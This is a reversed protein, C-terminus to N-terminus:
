NIASTHTRIGPRAVYSIASWINPTNIRADHSIIMASHNGFIANLGIYAIFIPVYFFTLDALMVSWQM